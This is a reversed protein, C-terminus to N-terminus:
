LGLPDSPDPGALPRAADGGRVRRAGPTSRSSSRPHRGCRQGGSSVPPRVPPLFCAGFMDDIKTASELLEAQTAAPNTRYFENWLKRIQSLHVDSNIENPIGRLNEISHLQSSSVETPYRIESAQREVAHHVWVKGRSAPNETFFTERYNTSTSSGLRAPGTYM